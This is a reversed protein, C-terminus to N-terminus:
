SATGASRQPPAEFAAPYALVFPEEDALFAELDPVYGDRFPALEWGRALALARVALEAKAASGRGDPTMQAILWHLRGLGQLVPAPDTGTDPESLFHGVLLEATEQLRGLQDPTTHRMVGRNGAVQRAYEPIVASPTLDTHTWVRLRTLPIADEDGMTLVSAREHMLLDVRVRRGGLMQPAQVAQVTTGPAGIMRDAVYAYRGVIPTRLGTRRVARDAHFNVADSAPNGARAHAMDARAARWNRCTSWLDAYGRLEGAKLQAAVVHTQRCFDVGYDADPLFEPPRDATAPFRAVGVRAQQEDTLVSERVHNLRLAHLVLTPANQSANSPPFGFEEQLTQAALPWLAPLDGMESQEPVPGAADRARIWGPDIVQGQFGPELSYRPLPARPAQSVWAQLAGRLALSDQQDAAQDNVWQDIDESPAALAAAHEARVAMPWAGPELTMMEGGEGAVVQVRARDELPFHQVVLGTPKPLRPDHLLRIALERARSRPSGLCEPAAAGDVGVHAVEVFRQEASTLPQGEIRCALAYAAQALHPPRHLDLM